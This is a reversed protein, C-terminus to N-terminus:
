GGDLHYSLSGNEWRLYHGSRHTEELGAEAETSVGPLRFKVQSFSGTGLCGADVANQAEAVSTVTKFTPADAALGATFIVVIDQAKRKAVVSNASDTVADLKAMVLATFVGLVAIVILLEVLSFGRNNRWTKLSTAKM